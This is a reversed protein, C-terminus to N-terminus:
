KVRRGYTFDTHLPEIKIVDGTHPADIMNGNGVYIGVHHAPDGFFVLDGPQLNARTVLTGVNQQDQSVRPLNIGFHAYVYQVFGSCDFGRPTTGGWVYPVGLYNSAYALVANSSYAAKGRSDIAVPTNKLKSIANRSAALEAAQAALIQAGYQREQAKLQSILVNQDSKQKNLDALKAENDAKLALLKQNQTELAAKKSDVEAKKAKFDDIVSQNYSLIRSINDIRSVLDSFSKSDLLIDVYSIASGSIYMARMREGYLLQEAKINDEAKAIDAQAQKIQTQVNSIDNDNNKMKIMISEIQNDMVTVKNELSSRETQIQKMKAKDSAVDASVSTCFLGLTFLFVSITSVIKKNM